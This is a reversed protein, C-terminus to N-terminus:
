VAEIKGVIELVKQHPIRVIMNITDLELGLFVLVETPGETKDDALPVSLENVCEIFCNMAIECSLQDKAGGLFDDLYHILRGVSMKSKIHSELFTAFTEFHRCSISCGMPMAKDVYYRNMFQFGLLEIDALRVPLLRFANKLDMKFLKCNRGLDHIMHVADDFRAYQVSCLNSDIFDNISANEPSSLHHILRFDGPSKKPVVGIPSCQLNTLPRNHFPGAVRGALIEKDIKLKVIDSFELASKLNKSDRPQRPGTYHLNFGYSFGNLIIEADARNEYNALAKSLHSLNIPSPALSKLDSNIPDQQASKVVTPVVYSGPDTVQPLSDFHIGELQHCLKSKSAPLPQTVAEVIHVLIPSDVLLGLAPARKTTWALTRPM